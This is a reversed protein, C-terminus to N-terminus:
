FVLGRGDRAPRLPARDDARSTSALCSQFAHVYRDIMLAPSFREEISRRCAAPAIDRATAIMAAMEAHHEVMVGNVHDDIIEPVAGRRTAVVPVGCAGAEIMTQGFPEPWDLPRVLAIAGHLLDVRQRTDVDGVYRVRDALRPAVHRHFYAREAPTRMRGAMVLPLAAEDAIDIARDPGDEHGMRGIWLLYDGDNRLRCPHVALDVANPITELWPYGPREARQAHSLSVLRATPTMGLSLDLLRAAEGSVASHV